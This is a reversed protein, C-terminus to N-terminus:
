PFHNLGFVALKVAGKKIGYLVVLGVMFLTGDGVPLTHHEHKPHKDKKPKEYTWSCLTILALLLILKENSYKLITLLIM